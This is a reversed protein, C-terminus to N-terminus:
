GRQETREDRGDSDRSACFATLAILTGSLEALPSARYFAKRTREGAKGKEVEARWRRRPREYLPVPPRPHAPPLCPRSIAVRARIAGPLQVPIWSGNPSIIQVPSAREASRHSLARGWKRSVESGRLRGRKGKKGRKQSRVRFSESFSVWGRKLAVSIRKRIPTPTDFM